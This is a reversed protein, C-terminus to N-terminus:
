KDKKLEELKLHLAGYENCYQQMMEYFMQINNPRRENFLEWIYSVDKAAKVVELLKRMDSVHIGDYHLISSDEYCLIAEELEELKM